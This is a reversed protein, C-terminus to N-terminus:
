MIKQQRTRWRTSVGDRSMSLSMVTNPSAVLITAVRDRECGDAPGSASRAPTKCGGAPVCLKLRGGKQGHRGLQERHTGRAGRRSVVRRRPARLRWVVANAAADRFAAFVRAVASGWPLGWLSLARGEMRQTGGWAYSFFRIVYSWLRSERPRAAGGHRSSAGPNEALHRSQASRRSCVTPSVPAANLSKRRRASRRAEAALSTPSEPATTEAAEAAESDVSPLRSPGDIPPASAAAEVACPPPPTRPATRRHRLPTM